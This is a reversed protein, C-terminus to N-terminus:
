DVVYGIGDDDVLLGHVAELTGDALFGADRRRTTRTMVNSQSESLLYRVYDKITYDFWPKFKTSHFELIALGYPSWQKNAKSRKDAHRYVHIRSPPLKLSQSWYRRAGSLSFRRHVRVYVCLRREDARCVERLFKIFVQLMQGDLNGIKTGSKNTKDGEAWYLLLAAALLERQAATLTKPITFSDGERNLKVYTSESWSRRPIKHKKLWYLVTAHTTRLEKAIEMMSLRRQTYLEELQTKTM